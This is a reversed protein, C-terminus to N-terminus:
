LSMNVCVTQSKSLPTWQGSRHPTHLLLKEGFPWTTDIVNKMSEAMSSNLTSWNLCRNLSESATEGACTWNLRLVPLTTTFVFITVTEPVVSAAFVRECFADDVNEFAAYAEVARPTAIVAVGVIATSAGLGVLGGSGGTGM